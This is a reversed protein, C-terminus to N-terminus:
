YLSHRSMRSVLPFHASLDRSLIIKRENISLLVGIQNHSDCLVNSMPMHKLKLINGIKHEFNLHDRIVNCILCYKHLLYYYAVKNTSNVPIKYLLLDFDM